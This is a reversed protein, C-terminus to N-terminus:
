DLGTIKKLHHVESPSLYRWKGRKLGQATLGAYEIRELHKIDYGLSEFMRRVQKNKGEHISVIVVRNQTGPIIEAAAPSTKGDELYVGKRIRECDKQDLPSKLTICYKKEVSSSPHMLKTALMGDNTFLLVGTTKRDLRGISFIREGPSLLDFVTRRKKEDHATTIFDNPKNLMIYVLQQRASIATGRVSVKDISPRVKTALDTVVKRNVTIEGNRILEEASRRSAIGSMAIFRNLRVTEPLIDTNKNEMQEM